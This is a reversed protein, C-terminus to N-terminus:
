VCKWQYEFMKKYYSYNGIDDKDTRKTCRRILRNLERRFGTCNYSFKRYRQRDCDYSVWGMYIGWPSSFGHWYCVCEWCVSSRMYGLSKQKAVPCVKVYGLKCTKGMTCLRWNRRNEWQKRKHSNGTSKPKEQVIILEAITVDLEEQTM